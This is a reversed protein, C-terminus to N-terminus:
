DQPERLISSAADGSSRRAHAFPKRAKPGRTLTAGGRSKATQLNKTMTFLSHM